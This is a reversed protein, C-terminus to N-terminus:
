PKRFTVVQGDELKTFSLRGNSTRGDRWVARYFYDGAVSFLLGEAPQRWYPCQAADNPNASQKRCLEYFFVPIFEVRGDSPVTRIKVGIEGAGCGGESTVPPLSPHGRRYATLAAVIRQISAAKVTQQRDISRAALLESEYRSLLGSWAERPYGLKTLVAQLWAIEYAVNATQALSRMREATDNGLFERGETCTYLDAKYGTEEDRTFQAKISGSAFMGEFTRKVVSYQSTSQAAVSMATLIM